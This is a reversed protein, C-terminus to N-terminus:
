WCRYCVLEILTVMLSVMFVLAYFVEFHSINGNHYVISAFNGRASYMRM